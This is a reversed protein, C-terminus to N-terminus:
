SKTSINEPRQLQSQERQAGRIRVNTSKMADLIEQNYQTQFKKAKANEKDLIAIEKIMDEIGSIREEMKQIRITIKTGTTGTRKVQNKM